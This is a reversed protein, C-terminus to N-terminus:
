GQAGKVVKGSKRRVHEGVYRIGKGKYPEPKRFARIRAATEGVMQKDMGTITLVNKEMNAQIGAPLQFEVPHSFGLNLVITNGQVQVRYGVGHVELIKSFGEAVGHVMNAILVRSLGWLARDKRDDVNRISVHVAGERIDAQVHPHLQQVLEGKPGKVRVTGDTVTATVGAPLLIPQLGIRSM